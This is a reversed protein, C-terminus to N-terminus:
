AVFLRAISNRALCGGSNRVRRPHVPGTQDGIADVVVVNCIYIDEQSGYNPALKLLLETVRYGRRESLKSQPM